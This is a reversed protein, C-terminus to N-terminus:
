QQVQQDPLAGPVGNDGAPTAWRLEIPDVVASAVDNFSAEVSDLLQAAHGGAVVIEHVSAAASAVRRRWSGARRARREACTDSCRGSIPRRPLLNM